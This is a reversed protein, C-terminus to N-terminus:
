ERHVANYGLLAEQITDTAQELSTTLIPSLLPIDWECSNTVAVMYDFTHGGGLTTLTCGPAGPGWFLWQDGDHWYVGQVEPPIDIIDALVVEGIYGDPLHKAFFGASCFDWNHPESPPPVPTHIEWTIPIEWECPGIVSVLYDFMHGGGLTSLTCGPASPAWFKWELTDCDYWYVGQVESPVNTLSNMEISGYYSDPM